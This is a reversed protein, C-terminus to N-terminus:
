SAHQQESELEVVLESRLTCGGMESCKRAVETQASYDAMEPESRLAGTDIIDNEAQVCELFVQCKAGLCEPGSGSM